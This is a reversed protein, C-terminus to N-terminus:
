ADTPASGEAAAPKKARSRPKPTKKAPAESTPKSEAPTASPEAAKAPATAAFPAEAAPSKTAPAKARGKPAPKGPAGSPPASRTAEASRDAARKLSHARTWKLRHGVRGLNLQQKRCSSTDFHFITGDRKVFMSGTGPEIEAACFSCQRKVVM